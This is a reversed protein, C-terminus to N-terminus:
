LSPTGLGGEGAPPREEVERVIGREDDVVVSPDGVPAGAGFLRVPVCEGLSPALHGVFQEARLEGLREGVDLGLHSSVPLPVTLENL